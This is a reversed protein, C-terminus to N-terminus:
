FLGRAARWTERDLKTKKAGGAVPQPPPRKPQPTTRACNLMWPEAPLPPCFSSATLKGADFMDAQLRTEPLSFPPEALPIGAGRMQARRPLWGKDFELLLAKQCRFADEVDDRGYEAVCGTHSDPLRHHGQAARWHGPLDLQKSWALPTTKASHSSYGDWCLGDGLATMFRVLNRMATELPM